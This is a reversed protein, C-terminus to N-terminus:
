AAVTIGGRSGTFFVYIPEDMEGLKAASWVAREDTDHVIVVGTAAFGDADTDTVTIAVWENPYISRIEMMSFVAAVKGFM